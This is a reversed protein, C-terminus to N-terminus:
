CGKGGALGQLIAQADARILEQIKEISQNGDICVAGALEALRRYTPVRDQLYAVSTGDQKRAAGVEPDIDIFYSRAVSPFARAVVGRAMTDVETLSMSCSMAFDAVADNLYRDCILVRRGKNPGLVRIHILSLYELLSFNIWLSRLLRNKFFRTRGTKVHAYNEGESKGTERLVLRKFISAPMRSLYPERRAWVYAADLGQTKLYDTLAVAQTTKGSGDVGLFSIIVASM